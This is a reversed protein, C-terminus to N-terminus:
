QAPHISLKFSQLALHLVRGEVHPESVHRATEASVDDGPCLRLGEIDSLCLYQRGEPSKLLEDLVLVATLESRWRPDGGYRVPDLKVLCCQPPVESGIQSWLLYIDQYSFM